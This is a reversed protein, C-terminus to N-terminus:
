GARETWDRQHQKCCFHRGADDSVAETSPVYIKCTLCKVTNTSDGATSKKQGSTRTGLFRQRVILLVIIVAAVIILNRLM